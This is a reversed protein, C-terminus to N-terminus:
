FFFSFKQDPNYLEFDTMEATFNFPPVEAASFFNYKTVGFLKVNIQMHLNEDSGSHIRILYQAKWRNNTIIWECM